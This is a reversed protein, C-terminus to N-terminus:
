PEAFIPEVLAARRRRAADDAPRSRLARALEHLRERPVPAEPRLLARLLQEEVMGRLAQDHPDVAQLAGELAERLAITRPRALSAAAPEGKAAVFQRDHAQLARAVALHAHPDEPALGRWLRAHHLALALSDLALAAEFRHRLPRPDRPHREARAAAVADAHAPAHALLGAVLHEWPEAESPALAALETPAPFRAVLYAVLEPDAARHLRALAELTAHREAEVDARAGAAAALLLWGDVNGPDLRVAARARLQATPAEGAVLAERARLRHLPAHLPRAAIAADSSSAPPRLWAWTMPLLPTIAVALGALGIALGRLRKAPWTRSRSASLAGALACAPAAVGLFELSFDALGQVALALLGLLAVRRARADDHHGAHRMAHIWWAPLLVVLAGGVLPGWEVILTLPACELHSFWAHSPEPDFAGFTDGFAGRGIGTIPALGVLAAASSTVRLRAATSPDLSEPDLLGGLESWAAFSALGVLIGIAGALAAIRSGGRRRGLVGSPWAAIALAVLGSLTASVMAARSASLVLATLQVLLAMGLVIRTELREGSDRAVFLGATAFGTVLLLGSQHNPNVFTALLVSGDRGGPLHRAEYLGYIEEIGLAHQGLGIAAVTVGLVALVRATVSWRLQAAVLALGALALLRVLEFAGDVPTPSIGPWADGDIGARAGEVWAHLEPALAARIGPIPLIQGLTAGAALIALGLGVPIRLPRGRRALALLLAAVVLALAPIVWPWVGGLALAPGAVALGLGLRM